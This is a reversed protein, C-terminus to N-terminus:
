FRWILDLGLETTTNKPEYGGAEYDVESDDINWYRIFPKIIFDVTKDKKEFSVSGRLGYGGNQKSHITGLGFDSLDTSQRGQMFVDFEATAALLWDGTLCRVTSVGVPLYLYRSERDYGAPDGSKDDALFRHGVGVYVTDMLTEKPFDMGLLLRIEGTRDRINNYKYPTGDMLEGDYDVVGLDYRAEARFMWKIDSEGAPFTPVWERYTYAGSVGWLFGTEKVGSEKYKFYYADPGVELSGRQLLKSIDAPKGEANAIPVFVFCVILLMLKRMVLGKMM